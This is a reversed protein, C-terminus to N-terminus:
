PARSSSSHARELDLSRTILRAASTVNASSVSRLGASTRLAGIKNVRDAIQPV